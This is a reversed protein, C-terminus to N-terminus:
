NRAPHALCLCPCHIDKLASRYRPGAELTREMWYSCSLKTDRGSGERKLSLDTIIGRALDYRLRTQSVSMQFNCKTCISFSHFRPPSHIQWLFRAYTNAPLPNASPKSKPSAKISYPFMRALCFPQKLDPFQSASRVGGPLLLPSCLSPGSFLVTFQKNM